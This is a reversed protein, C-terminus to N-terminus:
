EIKRGVAKYLAKSDKFNQKALIEYDLLAKQFNGAAEYTKGRQYKADLNYKNSQLAQEFRAIAMDYSKNEFAIIGQWLYIKSHEFPNISAPMIANLKALVLSAQKILNQSILMEMLKMYPQYMASQKQIFINLISIAKSTDKLILCNDAMQDNLTWDDPKKQLIWNIDRMANERDNLLTYCISRCRIVESDATDTKLFENLDAIAGKNNREHAKVLGRLRFAVPSGPQLRFMEKIDEHARRWDAMEMRYVTRKKHADFIDKDLALARSYCDLAQLHQGSHELTIALLFYVTASSELQDAAVLARFAEFYNGALLLCFGKKVNTFAEEKLGYGNAILYNAASFLDIRKDLITQGGVFKDENINQAKLATKLDIFAKEFDGAEINVFGRLMIYFANGPNLLILKDWDKLCAQANQNELHAIGRWFYASSSLSDIAIAKTFEVVAQKANFRARLELTGLMIYAPTFRANVAICKKYLDSASSFSQNLFSVNAMGFYGEAWKPNIEVAEVFKDSADKLKDTAIYIEGLEFCAEALRKNLSLAKRLDREAAAFDGTKKYCIGRYYFSVWLSTDETVAKNLNILAIDLNNEDLQNIGENILAQLNGKMTWKFDIKLHDYLNNAVMMEPEYYKSLNMQAYAVSCCLMLWLFVIIKVTNSGNAPRHLTTKM